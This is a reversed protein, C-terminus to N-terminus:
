RFLRPAIRSLGQRIQARFAFAAFSGFVVYPSFLMVLIGINFERAIRQGEPSSTLFTKCMACQAFAPGVGWALLATVVMAAALPRM